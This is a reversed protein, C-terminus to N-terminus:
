EAASRLGIPPVDPLSVLRARVLDIHVRLNFFLDSHRMPLTKAARDINELDAHMKATQSATPARQLEDELLRLRRYLKAVYAHVFSQYLKPAYNM